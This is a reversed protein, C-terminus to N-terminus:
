RDSRLPRFHHSNLNLRVAEDGVSQSSAFHIVPALEPQLPSFLGKFANHKVL